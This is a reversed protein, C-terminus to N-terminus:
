LERRASSHPRQGLMRPSQQVRPGVGGQFGVAGQINWFGPALLMRGLRFTVSHLREPSPTGLSWGSRLDGCRSLMSFQLHWVSFYPVELISVFGYDDHRPLSRDSESLSSIEISLANQGIASGQFRPL